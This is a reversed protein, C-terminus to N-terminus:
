PPQVDRSLEQFTMRPLRRAAGAEARPGQGCLKAHCGNPARLCAPALSADEIRNAFDYQTSVGIQDVSEKWGFWRAVGGKRVCELQVESGKRVQLNRHISPLLQLENM